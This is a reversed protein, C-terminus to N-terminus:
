TVSLQFARNAVESNLDVVSQLQGLLRIDSGRRSLTPLPRQSHRPFSVGSLGEILLCMQPSSLVSPDYVPQNVVYKGPSVTPLTQLSTILDPGLLVQQVM